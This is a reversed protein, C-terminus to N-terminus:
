CFTHQCFAMSLCIIHM